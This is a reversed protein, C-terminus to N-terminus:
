VHSMRREVAAVQAVALPNGATMWCRTIVRVCVSCVHANPFRTYPDHVHWAAPVERGGYDFCPECHKGRSRIVHSVAGHIM